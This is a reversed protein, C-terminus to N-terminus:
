ESKIGLLELILAEVPTAKSKILGRPGKLKEYLKGIELDEVSISCLNKNLM